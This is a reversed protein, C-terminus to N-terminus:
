TMNQDGSDIVYLLKENGQAKHYTKQDQTCEHIPNNNNLHPKM